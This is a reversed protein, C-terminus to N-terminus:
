SACPERSGRPATRGPRGRRRRRLRGRAPRFRQLVQLAGDHCRRGSGMATSTSARIGPGAEVVAAGRVRTRTAWPVRRELATGSSSRVAPRTPSSSGPVSTRWPQTSNWLGLAASASAPSASGTTTGKKRPPPYWTSCSRGRRMLSCPEPVIVAWRPGSGMTTSAAACRRRSASARSPASRVSSSPTTSAAAPERRRPGTASASVPLQGPQEADRHARGVQRRGPRAHALGDTTPAGPADPADRDGGIEQRLPAEGASQVAGVGIHDGSGQAIMGRDRLEDGPAIPGGDTLM